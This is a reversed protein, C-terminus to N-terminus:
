QGLMDPLDIAVQGTPQHYLWGGNGSAATPPFDETLTVTASGTVPNLPLGSLFYPGYPHRNDHRGPVGLADTAEVLQPLIGEYVLPPEGGHQLKYLDIQTRVAHLNQLLVARKAGASVADLAPVAAVTVVGVLAVIILADL